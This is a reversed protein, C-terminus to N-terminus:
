SQKFQDVLKVRKKWSVENRLYIPEVSDAVSAEGRVFPAVALRAIYSARPDIQGVFQTAASQQQAEAIMSFGSGIILEDAASVEIEDPSILRDSLVPTVTEGAREWIAEYCESMRADQIVHCRSAQHEEIAQFAMAALTSVGVVPKDVSFALGQVVGLCIRLGTFSGPGAGYAICDVDKLTLQAETLVEDVMPRLRRTHQRAAQEFREVSSSESLLAVSCADTSTDLALITPLKSM